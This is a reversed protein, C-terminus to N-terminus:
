MVYQLHLYTLKKNQPVKLVSYFVIYCAGNIVCIFLVQTAFNQTSLISWTASIAACNIVLLFGPLILRGPGPIVEISSIEPHRWIKRQIQFTRRNAWDDKVKVVLIKMMENWHAIVLGDGLFFSFLFLVDTVFIEKM